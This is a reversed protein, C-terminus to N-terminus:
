RDRVGTNRVGQSTDPIHLVIKACITRLFAQEIGTGRIYSWYLFIYIYIHGTGRIYSIFQQKGYYNLIGTLVLFKGFSM